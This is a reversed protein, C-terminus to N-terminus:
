LTTDLRRELFLIKNISAYLEKSFPFQVKGTFCLKGMFVLTQRMCKTRSQTQFCKKVGAILKM